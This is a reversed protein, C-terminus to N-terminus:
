NTDSKLRRSMHQVCDLPGILRLADQFDARIRNSFNKANRNAVNMQIAARILRDSELTEVLLRIFLEARNEREDSEALQACFADTATLLAVNDTRLPRTRHIQM